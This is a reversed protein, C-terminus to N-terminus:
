SQTLFEIVFRTHPHQHDLSLSGHHTEVISKAISLGLGTGKRVEKTTFFPEMIRTAIEESIGTGSDTFFICVKNNELKFDIEIWKEKLEEIADSSNNLLNIFVQSIQSPRCMISVQPITKIKLDIGHAKFKESCLDLTEDLLKQLPVPEFPDNNSARSFNRLGKVIKDIRDTTLKIKHIETFIGPQSIQLDELMMSIVKVKGQIIALPNNIEHAMGSAMEGLSAMKSSNILQVKSIELERTRQKVLEEAKQSFTLQELLFAGIFLMFVNLLLALAASSGSHLAFFNESPYFEIRHNRGFITVKRSEYFINQKFPATPYKDMHHILGGGSSVRVRLNHSFQELYKGFFVSSIVPANIFGKLKNNRDVVPYIIVFGPRDKEEQVLVLNASARPEMFELAKKVAFRRTAESGVDLGIVKQNPEFPEIFKMVLHHDYQAAITPDIIRVKINNAKEYAALDKKPVLEVYGLGYVADFYRGLEMSQVYIKWEEATVKESVRFLAAAGKVLAEYRGSLRTLSQVVADSSKHFDDLTHVKEYSSTMFIILFMSLWGFGIGILYKSSIKFGTNLPRVFLIAFAYSALLTQVYILNANTNGHEFPGYGIATLATIVFSFFILIFRSYKRGLNMGSLIFFPSLSWAFAQNFGKVFVLYISLSIVGFFCLGYFSKTLDIRAKEGTSAFELFLPLVLLIGIANGSWWTYLAYFFSEDPIIGIMNLSFVGISASFMSALISGIIITFFESYHKFLNKRLGYTILMSGVYAEVMNGFAAGAMGLFPTEVSFNVFFSGLFIAPAYRFGCILLAGIAFGSAPWIPSANRNITALTLGFYGLLFYALAIGLFILAKGWWHQPRLFTNEFKEPSLFMQLNETLM